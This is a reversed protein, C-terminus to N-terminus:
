KSIAHWNSWFIKKQVVPCLDLGKFTKTPDTKSTFTDATLMALYDYHLKGLWDRNKNEYGTIVTDTAFMIRDQYKDFFERFEENNNSIEEFGDTMFEIRGFSTDVFLNPYRDLLDSVRPLNKSSLCYHPCIVKMNPYASLVSELEDQYKSTNVPLMLIGGLDNLMDYIKLLKQDNLPRDHAYSYGTYIKVGLGGDELCKQVAGMRNLDSPDVTCFFSFKSTDTKSIEKIFAHNEDLGSYSIMGQGRYHLLDYPIGHLVTRDIGVDAMAATLKAIDGDDEVSEHINVIKDTDLSAVSVRLNEDKLFHSSSFSVVLMGSLALFSVAIKKKMIIDM